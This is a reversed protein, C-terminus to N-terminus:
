SCKIANPNALAEKLQALQSLPSWTTSGYFLCVYISLKRSNISSDM